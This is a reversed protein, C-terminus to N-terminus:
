AGPRFPRETQLPDQGIYYAKHDRRDASKRRKPPHQVEDMKRRTSAGPSRHNAGCPPSCSGSLRPVPEAAAVINAPARSTNQGRVPGASVNPRGAPALQALGGLGRVVDVGPWYRTVWGVYNSRIPRAGADGGSERGVSLGKRKRANEVAKTCGGEFSNM